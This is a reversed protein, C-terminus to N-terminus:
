YLTLKRVESEFDGELRYFYMGPALGEAELVSRYIITPEAKGEFLIKVLIGSQNYVVLRVMSPKSVSFSLMCAKRFPNPFARGMEFPIPQPAHVRLTKSYSFAGDTDWQKIRVYNDGYNLVETHFSYFQADSITGKGEVFGRKIFMEGDLSIEIDFGVNNIENVTMWEMLLDRGDAWVTFNLWEVPFGVCGPTGACAALGTCTSICSPQTGTTDCIDDTCIDNDDCRENFPFTVCTDIPNCNETCFVNDDCKSAPYITDGQCSLGSLGNCLEVGDCVNRDSACPSSKPAVSFSFVCIGQGNCFDDFCEDGFLGCRSGIPLPVNTIKCTDGGTSTTDCEWFYCSQAALRPPPSCHQGFPISVGCQAVLNPLYGFWGVVFLLPLIKAPVKVRFEM